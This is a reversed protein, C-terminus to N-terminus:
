KKVPPEIGFHPHDYTGTMGVRVDAGAKKNKFVWDVPKLLVSKLGTVDQSLEAKTRADGHFDIAESQLNYRGTMHISAGPIQFQLSSLRASAKQLMLDGEIQASVPETQQKDKQGRARKSLTDVDAQREPNTLKAGAISFHGSLVVKKVFPSEGPPIVVHTKFQAAGNM